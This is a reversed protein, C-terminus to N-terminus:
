TIFDKLLEDKDKTLQMLGIATKKARKSNAFYEAFSKSFDDFTRISKPSLTAVWDRAEWRLTPLFTRCMIADLTARLRMLDIFAKEMKSQEFDRPLPVAMVKLSFPDEKLVISQKRCSKKSMTEVIKHDMMDELGQKLSLVPTEVLMPTPVWSPQGRWFHPNTSSTLSHFHSASPPALSVLALPLAATSSTKM